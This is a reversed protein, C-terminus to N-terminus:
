IAQFCLILYSKIASDCCNLPVCRKKLANEAQERKSNLRMQAVEFIPEMRDPWNFTMSNLKIDDEPLLAYDMLFKLREGAQRVEFQM